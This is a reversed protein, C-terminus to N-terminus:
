KKKKSGGRDPVVFLNWDLQDCLLLEADIYDDIDFRRLAPDWEDDLDWPDM